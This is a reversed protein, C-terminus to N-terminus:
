LSYFLADRSHIAGSVTSTLSLMIDLCKLEQIIKDMGLIMYQPQNIELSPVHTILYDGM